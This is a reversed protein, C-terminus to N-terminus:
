ESQRARIRQIQKGIYATPLVGTHRGGITYVRCNFSYDSPPQETYIDIGEVLVSPSGAFKLAKASQENPVLVIEIESLSIQGGAAVAKLNQLTQMANPCGEFYAFEIM